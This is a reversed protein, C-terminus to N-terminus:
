VAALRVMRIPFIIHLITDKASIWVMKEITEDKSTDLILSQAQIAPDM